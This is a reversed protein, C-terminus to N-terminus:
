RHINIFDDEIDKSGTGPSIIKKANEGVDRFSVSIHKNELSSIWSHFDM